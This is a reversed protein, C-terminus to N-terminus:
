AHWRLPLVNELEGSRLKSDDRGKRGDENSSDGKPSLGVKRGRVSKALKSVRFAGTEAFLTLWSSAM